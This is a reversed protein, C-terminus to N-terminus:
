GDTIAVLLQGKCNNLLKAYPLVNHYERCRRSGEVGGLFGASFQAPLEFHVSLTYKVEFLLKPFNKLSTMRVFINLRWELLM